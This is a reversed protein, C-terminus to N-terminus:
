LRTEHLFLKDAVALIFINILGQPFCVGQNLVHFFFLVFSKKQDYCALMKSCKNVSCSAGLEDQTNEGWM